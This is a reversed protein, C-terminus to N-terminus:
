GAVIVTLTFRDIPWGAFWCGVVLWCVFVCVCLCVFLCVFLYVFLCIFLSSLSFFLCVFLCVFLCHLTRVNVFLTLLGVLWLLLSM